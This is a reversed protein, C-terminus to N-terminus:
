DDYEDKRIEWFWDPQPELIFTKQCLPCEIESEDERYILDFGIEYLSDECMIKNCHPCKIDKSRM